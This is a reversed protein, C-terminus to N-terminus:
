NTEKKGVFEAEGSPLMNKAFYISRLNIVKPFVKTIFETYDGKHLRQKNFRLKTSSFVERGGQYYHWTLEYYGDKKTFRSRIVISKKNAQKQGKLYFRFSESYLPENQTDIYMNVLLKKLIMAQHTKIQFVPDLIVERIYDAKNQIRPSYSHPSIRTALFFDLSQQFYHELRDSLTLLPVKYNRIAMRELFKDQLPDILTIAVYHRIKNELGIESAVIKKVDFDATILLNAESTNSVFTYDHKQRLDPNSRLLKELSQRIRQKIGVVDIGKVSEYTNLGLTLTDDEFRPNDPNHAIVGIGIRIKKSLIQHTHSQATSNVKMLLILLFTIIHHRAM